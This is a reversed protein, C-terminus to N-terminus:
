GFQGPHQHINGNCSGSSQKYFRKDMIIQCLAQQQRRAWGSGIAPLEKKILCSRQIFSNVRLCGPSYAGNSAATNKAQDFNRPTSKSCSVSQPNIITASTGSIAKLNKLSTRKADFLSQDFVPLTRGEFGPILLMLLCTTLKM